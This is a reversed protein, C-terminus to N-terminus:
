GDRAVLREDWVPLTGGPVYVSGFAESHRLDHTRRSPLM